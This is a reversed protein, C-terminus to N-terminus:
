RNDHRAGIFMAIPAVPPSFAPYRRGTTGDLKVISYSGADWDRELLVLGGDFDPLVPWAKSVDASWATTGDSTIAQVSDDGQFAFVDAVGHPSPVAPVIEYVGSENGSNSWMVAGPPLAEASVTVDARSPAPLSQSKGLRSRPSFRHITM